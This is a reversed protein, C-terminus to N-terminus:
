HLPPSDQDARGTAQETRIVGTEDLFFHKVGSSNQVLPDARLSFTTSQGVNNANGQEYTFRYGFKRPNEQGLSGDLLEARECNGNGPGLNALSKPFGIKPCMAAYTGLAYQYSRLSGIASAENAAMRARLLNPILIAALILIFPIFAVGLYGLILGALAMGGGTQRGDSRRIEGRSIHGLIIALIASPLVFFFLGCILSGIAKGNAGPTGTFYPNPAGSTPLAATVDLRCWKCVTDHEDIPRNCFPCARM